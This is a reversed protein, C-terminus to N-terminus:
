LMAPLYQSNCPFRFDLTNPCGCKKEYFKPRLNYIVSKWYASGCNREQAEAVAWTLAAILGLLVLLLVLWRHGSLYAGQPRPIFINAM